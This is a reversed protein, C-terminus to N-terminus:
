WIIGSGNLLVCEVLDLCNLSNTVVFTVHLSTSSRIKQITDNSRFLLEITVFPLLVLMWFTYIRCDIIYESTKKSEISLLSNALLSGVDPPDYLWVISPPQLTLWAHPQGDTFKGAAAAAAPCTYCTIM